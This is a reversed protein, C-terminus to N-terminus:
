QFDSNTWGLSILLKKFQPDFSALLEYDSKTGKSGTRANSLFQQISDGHASPDTDIPGLISQIDAARTSGATHAIYFCYQVRVTWDSSSKHLSSYLELLEKFAADPDESTSYGLRRMKGLVVAREELAEVLAEPQQKENSRLVAIDQDALQLNTQISSVYEPHSKPYALLQNAYWNASYLESLALPYISTAYDFLNKYTHEVNGAMFLSSYPADKFIEATIAPDGYRFYLHAMDQVAYARPIASLTSSSAALNKYIAVASSYDGSAAEAYALSFQIVASQSPDSVENAALEYQAVADSFKRQDSLRLGNEYAQNSKLAHNAAASDAYQAQTFVVHENTTQTSVSPNALNTLYAPVVLLAAFVLLLVFVIGTLLLIRRWGM